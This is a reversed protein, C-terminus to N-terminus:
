VVTNNFGARCKWGCGAGSAIANNPLSPCAVCASDRFANGNTLYFGAPCSTVTWAVCPASNNLAKFQGTPCLLCANTAVQYGQPCSCAPSGDANTCRSTTYTCMPITPCTSCSADTKSTCPVLVAGVACVPASCAICTVSGNFPTYTGPLCPGCAAMTGFLNTATGPPCFACGSAGTLAGYTGPDCANCLNPSSAGVMTSYLGKGCASCTLAGVLSYTGVGCYSCATTNSASSYTGARCQPCFSAGPNSYTAPGCYSCSAANDLSFTGATCNRCASAGM